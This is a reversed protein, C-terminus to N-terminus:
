AKVACPICRPEGDVMRVHRDFVYEGCTGCETKNCSGKVPQCAFELLREM